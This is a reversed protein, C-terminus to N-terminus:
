GCLATPPVYMMFLLAGLAMLTLATIAGAAFASAETMEVKHNKM